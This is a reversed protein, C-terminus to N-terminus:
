LLSFSYIKNGSKLYLTKVHVFLDEKDLESLDEVIKNLREIEKRLEKEKDGLTWLLSLHFSPNKYYVPQNFDVLTEDIAKVLQCLGTSAVESVKLGLFTRTREDNVYVEFELLDISFRKVHVNREISEAFSQIQHHRLILTRSLSIHYDDCSHLEITCTRTIKRQLKLIVDEADDDV